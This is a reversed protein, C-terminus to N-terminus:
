RPPLLLITLFSDFFGNFDEDYAGPSTPFDASSTFGTVSVRDPPALALSFTLDFDTGGLFTSYGLASGSADLRTVYADFVGNFSLDYGNLTTPFDASETPGTVHVREQSDLAMGYAFDVGGGGLFTGYALAGGSPDLQLVFADYGGNFSSDFAGPTTPFDLSATLGVVFANGRAGLAITYARDDGGGGLFTSYTLASGAANLKTVFGDYTGGGHSVDFAGSTTPFDPSSTHGTVYAVGLPNIVITGARDNLSGGLFTSYVLGDGAETLKAVFVDQGGNHSVDFAGLTTPFDASRTLGSVFARGSSDIALSSAVDQATGGLFTSYLLSDGRANLKAVFIEEAGTFSTDFAGPTTPFDASTTAGLLYVDGAPDVVAMVLSDDGSGGLLTSYLLSGGRADLKAIFADSGGSLTVDFAGPTTPFDASATFGVVYINGQLDRLVANGFDLELGGLFSSDFGSPPGEGGRAALSLSVPVAFTLALLLGM